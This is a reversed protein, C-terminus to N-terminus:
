ANSATSSRFRSTLHPLGCAASLAPVLAAAAARRLVRQQTGDSPLAESAWAGGATTELALETVYPLVRPDQGSLYFRSFGGLARV